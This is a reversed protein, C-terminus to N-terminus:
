PALVECLAPFAAGIHHGSQFLVDDPSDLLAVVRGSDQRVVGQGPVVLHGALGTLAIIVSGTQPDFTWHRVGGSRATISKGNASYTATDSVRILARVESGSADFFRTTEFQGTVDIQVPFACPGDPAAPVVFSVDIPTTFVDPPSAGAGAPLAAAGAVVVVLLSLSRRGRRHAHRWDASLGMALRGEGASRGPRELRDWVFHRGSIKISLVLEDPSPGATSCRYSSECDGGDISLHAIL